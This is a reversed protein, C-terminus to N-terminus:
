SEDGNLRRQAMELNGRLYEMSKKKMDEFKPFRRGYDIPEVNCIYEMSMKRENDCFHEQVDFLDMLSYLRSGMSQTVSRDFTFFEKQYLLSFVAAHFSDTLVCESHKILSIFEAPGVEYLQVDGFNRNRKAYGDSLYPITVIKLENERAYETAVARHREDNGLFHCFVYRGQIINDVAIENWQEVGLLLTPDLVQEVSLETIPRVIEVANNERVSIAQYDRLSRRYRELQQESLSEVAISAAYSFKPYKQGDAFDLLYADCVALPHWVQDSGTIFVNYDLVIAAMDTYNYVRPSHPILAQNFGRVDKERSKLKEAIERGICANHYMSRLQWYPKRIIRRLTSCSKNRNSWFLNDKSRDYQIQHVECGLSGIVRCLAYAQLNGGYNSSNYYHTLIGIRMKKDVTSM